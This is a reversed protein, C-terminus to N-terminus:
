HGFVQNKKRRSLYRIIDKVIKKEDLVGSIDCNVVLTKSCCLEQKKEAAKDIEM